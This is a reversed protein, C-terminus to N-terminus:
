LYTSRDLMIPRDISTMQREETGSASVYCAVDGGELQEFRVLDEGVKVYLWEALAV